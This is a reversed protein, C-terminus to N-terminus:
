QREKQPERKMFGDVLVDAAEAYWHGVGKEHQRGIFVDDMFSRENSRLWRYRAADKADSSSGAEPPLSKSLVEIVDAAHQLLERQEASALPAALARLDKVTKAHKM